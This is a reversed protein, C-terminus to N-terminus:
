TSSPKHTAGLVYHPGQTKPSKLTVFLAFLDGEKITLHQILVCISHFMLFFKYSKISLQMFSKCERLYILQCPYHGLNFVKVSNFIYIYLMHIELKSSLM